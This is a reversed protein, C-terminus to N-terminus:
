MSMHALYPPFPRDIAKHSALQNLLRRATVIHINPPNSLFPRPKFALGVFGVGVSFFLLPSGIALPPSLISTM